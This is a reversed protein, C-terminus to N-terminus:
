LPTFSLNLYTAVEATFDYDEMTTAHRGKSLAHALTLSQLQKELRFGYVREAMHLQGLVAPTLLMIRDAVPKSLQVDVPGKPLSPVIPTEKHYERNAISQMIRTASRPAYSFSAPLLRTMFGVRMWHRRKNELEEKALAAILGCRIPQPLTLKTAYTQIAVAGEELLVNLFTILTEVTDPNRGLCPLLDPVVLHHIQGSILGSLIPRTPSTLAWATLDDLFLLGPTGQFKRLLSTKGSEVSATLLLSVPREKAVYGSWISALVLRELPETGIM